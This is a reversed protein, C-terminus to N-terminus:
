LVFVGNVSVRFQTDALGIFTSQYRIGSDLSWSPSLSFRVGIAGVYMRSLRINNRNVDYSFLPLTQVEGMVTTRESLVISAGGCAQWQSSRRESDDSVAFSPSVFGAYVNRHRVDSLGIGAHLSTTARLHKSLFLALTTIRSELNLSRLGVDYSAQDTAALADSNREEREWDNSSRLSIGIAPLIEDGAYVHVRMGATRLGPVSTVVSTVLGATSLEIEGVGEIGVAATGLFSEGVQIGFNNGFTLTFASHSPPFATPVSFLRAPQRYLPSVADQKTAPRAVLKAGCSTCYNNSRLNPEKCRECQVTEGDQAFTAGSFTANLTLALLLVLFRNM